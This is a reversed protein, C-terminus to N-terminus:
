GPIKILLFMNYGMSILKNTQLIQSLRTDSLKEECECYAGVFQFSLYVSWCIYVQVFPWHYLRVSNSLFTLCVSQFVFLQLFSTGSVDYIRTNNLSLELEKVRGKKFGNLGALRHWFQSIEYVFILSNPIFGSYKHCILNYIFIIIWISNM